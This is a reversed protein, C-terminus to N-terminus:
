MVILPAPYSLYYLSYIFVVKCKVFNFYCFRFVGM